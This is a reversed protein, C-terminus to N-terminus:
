ALWSGLVSELPRCVSSRLASRQKLHYRGTRKHPGDTLPQM